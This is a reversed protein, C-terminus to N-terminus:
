VVSKQSFISVNQTNQSNMYVVSTNQPVFSLSEKLTCTTLFSRFHNLSRYVVLFVRIQSFLSMMHIAHESYLTALYQGSM